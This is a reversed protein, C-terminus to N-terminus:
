VGQLPNSYVKDIGPLYPDGGFHVVNNFTNKCTEFHKDDGQVASYADGLAVPYPMPFHLSFAKGVWARVERTVQNNNGSTFTVYGENYYADAQASASDSFERTPDGGLATVSGAFIRGILNAGCEVSAVYTTGNWIAHRWPCDPSYQLGTRVALRQTLDRIEAKMVGKQREIQGLHGYRQINVNTDLLAPPNRWDYEFVTAEADDWVGAEIERETSVSMFCTVDLTNVGLDDTTHASSTHLGASARYRLGDIVVDQDHTSFGFARTDTRVVKLGESLTTQPRALHALLAVSLNKM